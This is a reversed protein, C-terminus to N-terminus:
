PNAEQCDTVIELDADLMRDLEEQVTALEDALRRSEVLIPDDWRCPYGQCLDILRDNKKMAETIRIFRNLLDTMEPSVPPLTFTDAM